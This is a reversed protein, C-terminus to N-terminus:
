NEVARQYALVGVTIARALKQRNAQTFIAKAEKPATMFGAEVLVAPMEANRLVAFRARRVGRDESGLTRVLQRQLQYALYMNHRDNLNGLVAQTSAAEGRANTSQAKSPTLCYVEMGSVDSNGNGSANYHLSLFLDAGYRKAIPNREYPDLYDDGSRTLIVRFGAQRLQTRLERALLLTHTKEQQSGAQHGPDRGGHGPDLAIVKIKRGARYQPPHLVPEIATRLDLSSIFIDQNRPIIPVSLWVKIGNLEAKRSDLTFLLRVSRNTVSIQGSSRNWGVRYGQKMAWSPLSVVEQGYLVMRSPPSAAAAPYFPLALLAM